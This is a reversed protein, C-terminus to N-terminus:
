NGNKTELSLETFECSHEGMPTPIKMVNYLLMEWKTHKIFIHANQNVFCQLTKYTIPFDLIINVHVYLITRRM